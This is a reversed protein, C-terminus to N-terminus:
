RPVRVICELTMDGIIATVTTTGRGVREVLGEQSVSVVNTDQSTWVVEGDYLDRTGKIKVKMQVPPDGFPLTFDRHNLALEPLVVPEQVTVQCTVTETGSAATIVASGAGKGTVTGSEVTAVDQNSSSWIVGEGGGSATLLASEGATLSLATQSLTLPEAPEQTESDPTQVTPPEAPKESGKFACRSVLVCLLVLLALLVGLAASLYYPGQRRLRIVVRRLYRLRRAWPSRQKRRQRFCYPCRQYSAPYQKGCRPCQRNTMIEM